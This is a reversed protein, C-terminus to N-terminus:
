PLRQGRFRQPGARAKAPPHHREPRPGSGAAPDEPDLSIPAACLLYHRPSGRYITIEAEVRERSVVCRETAAQIETNRFGELLSLGELREGPGLVSLIHASPNARRVRFGEDVAIVAEGISDLITSLERTREADLSIRESLEAAMANMTQGLRDLEAPDLRGVRRSFDGAAWARATEGLAAVPRSVRRGLQVSVLAVAGLLVVAWIAASTYFPALREKMEPVALSIRLVGAAGGELALPAAVYLMDVGVTASRRLDFALHGEMAGRVEPRGSHNDMFAPDARSDGLVTGDSAILTIRFSTGRATQDCFANAAAGDALVGEPLGNSLARVTESLAFRNTDYYLSRLAIFGM